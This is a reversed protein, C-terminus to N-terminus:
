EGTESFLELQVPEPWLWAQGSRLMRLIQARHEAVPVGPWQRVALALHKALQFQLNMGEGSRLAAWAGM